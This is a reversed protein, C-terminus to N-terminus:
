ASYQSLLYDVAERLMKLELRETRLLQMAKEIQVEAKCLNAELGRLDDNSKFYGELLHHREGDNFQSILNSITLAAQDIACDSKEKIGSENPFHDLRLEHKGYNM